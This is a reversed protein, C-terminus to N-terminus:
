AHRRALVALALAAGLAPVWGEATGM